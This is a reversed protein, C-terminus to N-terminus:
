LIVGRQWLIDNLIPKQLFLQENPGDEDTNHTTPSKTGRSPNSGSLELEYYFHQIVNILDSQDLQSIIKEIEEPTFLAEALIKRLNKEALDNKLNEQMKQENLLQEELIEEPTPIKLDSPIEKIDEPLIENPNEKQKILKDFYDLKKIAPFFNIWRKMTGISELLETTKQWGHNKEHKKFYEYYNKESEALSKMLARYEAEKKRNYEAVKKRFSELTNSSNKIYDDKLKIHKQIAKINMKKLFDKQNEDESESLIKPILKKLFSKEDM